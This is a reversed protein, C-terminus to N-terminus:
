NNMKYYELRDNIMKGYKYEEVSEMTGSTFYTLSTGELVGNKYPEVSKLNGTSYYNIMEGHFSGKKYNSTSRLSGDPYNSFSNGHLTGKKFNSTSFLTGNEFFTDWADTKLGNSDHAGQETYQASAAFYFLLFFLYIKSQLLRMTNINITPLVHNIERQIIMDMM